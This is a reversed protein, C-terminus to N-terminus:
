QARPYAAAELLLAQQKTSFTHHQAISFLCWEALFQNSSIVLTFPRPLSIGVGASLLIINCRAAPPKPPGELFRGYMTNYFEIFGCSDSDTVTPKVGPMLAKHGTDAISRPYLTVSPM